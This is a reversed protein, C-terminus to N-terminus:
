HVTGDHEALLYATPYMASLVVLALQLDIVSAFSEQPRTKGRAPGQRSIGGFNQRVLPYRYCIVM